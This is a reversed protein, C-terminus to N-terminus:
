RPSLLRVVEAAPLGDPILEAREGVLCYSSGVAASMPRLLPYVPPVDQLFELEPAWLGRAVRGSFGRSAVTRQAADTRLLARNAESTGAEPCLLFMSGTQVAIVGPLDLLAQVDSPGRVGGAAIIPLTCRRAIQAVLEAVPTANPQTKPDFTLRHGGAEVGQVILADVGAQAATEAEDVSTVSNWAQAGLEHLQAVQASTFAGFSLSVVSPGRDGRLAELIHQWKQPFDSAAATPAAPIEQGPFAKSLLERAQEVDQTRPLAVQPAFLNVGFPTGALAAMDAAFANLPQNGSALFGFGGGRAVAAVLKPTSPGGAMPAAIVRVTHFLTPTDTTGM